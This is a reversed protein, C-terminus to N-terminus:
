FDLYLCTVEAVWSAPALSDKTGVLKLCAKAFYQHGTELGPFLLLEWKFCYCSLASLLTVMSLDQLPKFKFHSAMCGWINSVHLQVGSETILFPSAWFNREWVQSCLCLAAPSLLEIGFEECTLQSVWILCKRSPWPLTYSEITEGM